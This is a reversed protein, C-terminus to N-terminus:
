LASEQVGLGGGGGWPCSCKQLLYTSLTCKGLCGGGWVWGGGWPCSCKQLLFTGLTCKGPYEGGGLIHESHVEWVDLGVVGEGVPMLVKTALIHESHVKGSM